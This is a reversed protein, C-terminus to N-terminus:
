EATWSLLESPTADEDVMGALVIILATRWFPHDGTADRAAAIADLIEESDGTRVAGVLRLASPLVADGLTHGTGTPAM